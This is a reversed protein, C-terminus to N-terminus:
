QVTRPARRRTHVKPPEPDTKREAERVADRTDNAEKRLTVALVLIRSVEGLANANCYEGTNLFAAIGREMVRARTFLVEARDLMADHEPTTPKSRRRM